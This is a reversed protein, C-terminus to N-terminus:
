SSGGDVAIEHEYVVMREFRSVHRLTDARTPSPTTRGYVAAFDAETAFWQEACGDWDCEAAPKGPLTDAAHRINVVYRKLYPRQAALIDPVHRVLWWDRFEELTLHEARKLFWIVKIVAVEELV